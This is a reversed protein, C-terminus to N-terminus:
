LYCPYPNTSTAFDSIYIYVHMSGNQSVSKLHFRTLGELGSLLATLRSSEARLADDAVCLSDSSQEESMGLVDEREQLLERQKLGRKELLSDVARQEETVKHLEDEMQVIREAFDINDYNKKIQATKNEKDITSSDEQCEAIKELFAVWTEEAEASDIGGATPDASPDDSESMMKQLFLERARAVKFHGATEEYEDILKGFAAM